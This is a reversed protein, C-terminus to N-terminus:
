KDLYFSIRESLRERLDALTTYLIHPYDKIDFEINVKTLSPANLRMWIIDKSKAVAYGAEFYCNPKDETTDVIVIRACDINHRIRGTISGDFIEQDVRVCRINHSEVVKKVGEEYYTELVPNNSFSMVVFCFDSPNDKHVSAIGKMQSLSRPNNM